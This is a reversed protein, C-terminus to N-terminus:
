LVRYNQEIDEKELMRLNEATESVKKAHGKYSLYIAITTLVTYIVFLLSGGKLVFSEATIGMIARIMFVSSFFLMINLRFIVIGLMIIIFASGEIDGIVEKYFPKDPKDKPSTQQQSPQINGNSQAQIPKRIKHPSSQKSKKERMWGRIIERVGKYKMSTDTVRIIESM